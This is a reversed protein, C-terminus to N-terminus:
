RTWFLNVALACLTLLQAAVVGSGKPLFDTGQEIVAVASAAGTLMTVIKNRQSRPTTEDMPADNM